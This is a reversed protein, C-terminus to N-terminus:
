SETGVITKIPYAGPGPVKMAETSVITRKMYKSMVEIELCQRMLQMM